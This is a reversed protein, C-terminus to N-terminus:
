AGKCRSQFWKKKLTVSSAPSNPRHKEFAQQQECARETEKRVEEANHSKGTLANVLSTWFDSLVKFVSTEYLKKNQDGMEIQITLAARNGAPPFQDIIDWAHEFNPPNFRDVRSGYAILPEWFKEQLERERRVGDVDLVQDWFTTLLVVNKFADRGCLQQFMALNRRPAGRM